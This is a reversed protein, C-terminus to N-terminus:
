KGERCLKGRMEFLHELIRLKSETMNRARMPETLLEGLEYEVYDRVKRTELAARTQQEVTSPLILYYDGLRAGFLELSDARKFALRLAEANELCVSSFYEHAYLTSLSLADPEFYFDGPKADKHMPKLAGDRWLFGNYGASICYPRLYEGFLRVFEDLMRSVCVHNGFVIKLLQSEVASSLGVPAADGSLPLIMDHGEIRLVIGTMSLLDKIPRSTWGPASHIMVRANRMFQLYDVVERPQRMCTASVTEADENLRLRCHGDSDLRVMVMDDSAYRHEAWGREEPIYVWHHARSSVARCSLEFVEGRKGCALARAEVALGSKECEELCQAMFPVRWVACEQKEMVDSM